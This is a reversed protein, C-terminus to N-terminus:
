RDDNAGEQKKAQYMSYGWFGLVALALMACPIAFILDGCRCYLTKDTDSNSVVIASVKFGEVGLGFKDDGGELMSIVGYKNIFCTVGTNASRVIPVRNEIARFVCHTMHQISAVTGDFWADNTQNVLFVAGAKVARRSLGAFVDEFCILVAFPMNNGGHEAVPVSLVTSERGAACSFGLPVIRKIVKLQNELPVYEGCPVLHQKRYTGLIHGNTGVLFSSNYFIWDSYVDDADATNVKEMAGVLVPSGLATLEGVFESTIDDLNFPRMLATEPWIILDPRNLAALQTQNQLREFLSLEFDLDWKRIQPTNPQIAAIRVTVSEGAEARGKLMIRTGHMWCLTCILLGTMLEYRFRSSSEKRRYVSVLRLGTLTLATNMVMVVASVIYVGGWEAAQAVSLNAYQSVGLQNWPFGTFLEGRIYELGTWVGPIIFILLFRWLGIRKGSNEGQLLVDEHALLIAACASFLATYLAAYGSLALWGLMAFFLNTGTQSLSLLWSISLIWFLLGCFYGWKFAQVPTSFRALLLLPVFAMWAAHMDGVPPFATYLLLASLLTAFMRLIISLVVARKIQM